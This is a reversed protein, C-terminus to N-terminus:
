PEHATRGHPRGPPSRGLHGSMSCPASIGASVRMGAFEWNLLSKFTMESVRLVAPIAPIPGHPSRTDAPIKRTDTRTNFVATEAPQSSHQPYQQYRAPTKM